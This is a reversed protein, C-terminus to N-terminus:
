NIFKFVNLCSMEEPVGREFEIEKVGKIYGSPARLSVFRVTEIACDFPMINKSGVTGSNHTGFFYCTITKKNPGISHVRSPWPLFGRMRAMVTDGVSLEKGSEHYKKLEKQYATDIFWQLTPMNSTRISEKVIKNSQVCAEIDKEKTQTTPTYNSQESAEIGKMKARKAPARIAPARITPAQTVSCFIRNM